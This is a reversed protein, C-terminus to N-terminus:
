RTNSTDCLVDLIGKKLLAALPGSLTIGVDQVAM